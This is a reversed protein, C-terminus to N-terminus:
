ARQSRGVDSSAFTRSFRAVAMKIVINKVVPIKILLMHFNYKGKPSRIYRTVGFVIGFMVVAIVIINHTMFSSFNLLVQTYV